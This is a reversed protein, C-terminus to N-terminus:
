HAEPEKVGSALLLQFSKIWLIRAVDGQVKLQGFDATPIHESNISANPFMVDVESGDISFQLHITAMAQDQQGKVLTFGSEKVTILGENILGENILTRVSGAVPVSEADFLEIGQHIYFTMLQSFEDIQPQETLATKTIDKSIGEDIAIGVAIGAPGMSSMLMFGASSGKGEFSFKEKEVAVRIDSVDSANRETFVGCGFVCTLTFISVAVRKLWTGSRLRKSSLQKSISM